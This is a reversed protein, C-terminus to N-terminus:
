KPQLQKLNEQVITEILQNIYEIHIDFVSTNAIRQTSLTKTLFPLDQNTIDVSVNASLGIRLPYNKVVEPDLSIRVPLRQVIKIWNGTANQPPILSFVSGTGSSIGIVKGQYVVSSGYIDLWVTAPQGVRMYTLQTEKFNADVWVYKTPIIAMLATQPNIRQGVEVSRKAVYGSYPAYIACHQLNYFAERVNSKQKEILPHNEIPTNGIAALATQLQYKAQKLNFEAVSFASKAHEYDENSIAETNVLNSRNQFDYKARGFTAQHSDVNAQNTNVENYLQNVQLVSSALASLEKEYAIQYYTSDLLVLLQGEEVLDTDDAFYEIVSGPIVSNVIVLNGNAYADDTSEYYQLYLFWYLFWVIAGLLLFLTFWLLLHSRRKVPQSQEQINSNVNNPPIQENQKENLQITM